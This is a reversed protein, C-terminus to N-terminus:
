VCRYYLQHPTSAPLGSVLPSISHTRNQFSRRRANPVLYYRFDLEYELVGLFQTATYHLISFNTKRRSLVICMFIASFTILAVYHCSKTKILESDIPLMERRVRHFRVCPACGRPRRTAPTATTPFNHPLHMQPHTPAHLPHSGGGSAMRCEYRWWRRQRVVLLDREGQLWLELRRVM